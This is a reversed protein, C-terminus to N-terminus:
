GRVPRQQSDLRDIEREAELLFRRVLEGAPVIEPIDGRGQGAAYCEKAPDIDDTELPVGLHTAGGSMRPVSLRAVFVSAGGAIIADIQEEMGEPLAALLDVGFPASTRQRVEALERKLRDLGIPAVGLTGFGCADIVAALLPDCSVGGVGALMVPHEYDLLDTLGTHMM